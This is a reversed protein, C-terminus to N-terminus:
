GQFPGPVLSVRGGLFPMPGSIGEWPFSMPGPVLFLGSVLFVRSGGGQVSHCVGTFVNDKRLKMPPPM